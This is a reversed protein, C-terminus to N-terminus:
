GNMRAIKAGLPKSCIELFKRSRFIKPVPQIYSEDIPDPGAVRENARPVYLIGVDQTLM